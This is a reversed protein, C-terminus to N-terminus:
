SLEIFLFAHAQMCTALMSLWIFVTLYVVVSLTACLFYAGTMKKDKQCIKYLSRIGGSNVKIKWIKLQFSFEVLSSCKIRIQFCSRCAPWNAVYHSFITDSLASYTVTVTFCASLPKVPWSQTPWVIIWYSLLHSCCM